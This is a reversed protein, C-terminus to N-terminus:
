LRNHNNYTNDDSVDSDSIESIMIKVKKTIITM